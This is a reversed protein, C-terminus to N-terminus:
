HIENDRLERAIRVFGIHNGDDDFIANLVVNAWYVTGDKKLRKGVHNARGEKTALKLLHESLKEKKETSPHLISLPKGIIEAPQYGDMLVAGVNWFLFTGQISLLTISLDKVQHIAYQLLHMTTFDLFMMCFYANALISNDHKGKQWNSKTVKRKPM